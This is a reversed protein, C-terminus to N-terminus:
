KKKFPALMEELTAPGNNDIVAYFAHQVKAAAENYEAVKEDSVPIHDKPDRAKVRRLCEDLDTKVQVLKVVYKRALSQHLNAFGDGAGLSEIMVKEHDILLTDIAREVKKWGDEGKKLGVWLPETRLFHIDTQGEVQTGIHSKGAGKPGVLVYVTRM